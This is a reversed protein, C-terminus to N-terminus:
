GFSSFLDDIVNKGKRAKKSVRAERTSSRTKIEETEAGNTISLEQALNVQVIRPEPSQTQKTQDRGISRKLKREKKSIHMDPTPQLRSIVEGIDENNAALDTVAPAMTFGLPTVSQTSPITTDKILSTLHALVGLLVIGLAAFQGDAV